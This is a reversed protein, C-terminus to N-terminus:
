EMIKIEWANEIKHEKFVNNVAEIVSLRPDIFGNNLKRSFSARNKINLSAWLKTKVAAIEGVSIKQYSKKFSYHKKGIKKGM